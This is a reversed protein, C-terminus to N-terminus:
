NIPDSLAALAMRSPWPRYIRAGCLLWISIFNNMWPKTLTAMEDDTLVPGAITSFNVYILLDALVRRGSIEAGLYKKAKQRCVRPIAELAYQRDRDREIPRWTAEGRERMERVLRHEEAMRRDKQDAMTVELNLLRSADRLQADPFAERVLKVQCLHHDNWIRAFLGAVYADFLHQVGTMGLIVDAEFQGMCDDAARFFERPERWAEFWDKPVIKALTM